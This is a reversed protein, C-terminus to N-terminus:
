PATRVGCRREIGNVTWAATTTTNVFRDLRQSLMLVPLRQRHQWAAVVRYPRGPAKEELLLRRMDQIRTTLENMFIM